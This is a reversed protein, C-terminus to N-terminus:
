RISRKLAYALVTDLQHQYDELSNTLQMDPKVGVNHHKKGSPFAVKKATVLFLGGTKLSFAAPQGTSGATPSGIITARGTNAFNIVFNEASSYTLEDQLITVPLAKLLGKYAEYHTTEIRTELYQHGLMKVMKLLENDSENEPQHEQTMLIMGSAIDGGDIVQTSVQETEFEGEYFAQTIADALGSNGGGNDRVDFILEESELYMPVYEYFLSVMEESMFHSLKVLAKNGVQYISIAEEELFVRYDEDLSAQYSKNFAPRDFVFPSNIQEGNEFEILFSTTQFLFSYSGQAMKLSLNISNRWYRKGVEDLFENVSMQNIDKIPQYMFDSWPHNAADIVLQGEIVRFSVPSYTLEAKIKDPLYILTHGDELMSSLQQLEKYFMNLTLGQQVKELLSITEKEWKEILEDTWYPFVNLGQHYIKLVDSLQSAIM